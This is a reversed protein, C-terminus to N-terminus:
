KNFKSVVNGAPHQLMMWVDGFMYVITRNTLTSKLIICYYKLWKIVKMKRWVDELVLILLHLVTTQLSQCRIIEKTSIVTIDM